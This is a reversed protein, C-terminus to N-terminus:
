QVPIYINDIWASDQGAFRASDKSYVWEFLHEGALVNYKVFTYPEFGSWSDQIFGDIYFSLTDGTWYPEYEAQSNVKYYFGIVGEGCIVTTKLTASKDDGIEPSKAAYTGDYPAYTDLEWDGDGTTTWTFNGGNLGSEFGEISTANQSAFEYLNIIGDGDSDDAADDTLPDLSNDIEWKDDMGDSDTDSKEPNSLVKGEELDSLGDGDSDQSMDHDLAGFYDLEWADAVGDGDSDAPGPFSITDIWAADSGTYRSDDKTYVWEFKREGALVEYEAFAYQVYGSWSDQLIGDIYFSLTDGTWHPEYEAQSNVKYYFGIVGEGCVVTTELTASKDDGIEPSKAAYIGDYPQSTDLEWDEDGTTIWYYADSFGNEFDEIYQSAQVSIGSLLIISMMAIALAFRCLTRKRM